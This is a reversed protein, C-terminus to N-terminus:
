QIAFVASLATVGSCTASLTAVDPSQERWLSSPCQDVEDGV